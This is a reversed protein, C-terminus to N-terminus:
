AFNHQLCDNKDKEQTSEGSQHIQIHDVYKYYLMHANEKIDYLSAYSRLYDFVLMPLM